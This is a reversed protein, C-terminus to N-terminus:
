PLLLDVPISCGPLLSPEVIDGRHLVRVSQYSDGLPNSHIM